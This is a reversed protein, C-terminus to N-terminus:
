GIVIPETETKPPVVSPAPPPLTPPLAPRQQPPAPAIVNANVADAAADAAAVTVTVHGATVDADVRQTVSNANVEARKANDNFADMDTGEKNAGKM